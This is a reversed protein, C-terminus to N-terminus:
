TLKMMRIDRGTFQLLQYQGCLRSFIRQSYRKEIENLNLNTNIICSKGTNHRTNILNYLCSATFQNSLEAGLDDIILLDCTFYRDTKKEEIGTNYTRNFREDEFDGFLNQATEYLVDFGRDILAKAIASSMHTKGLGTQGFFLLNQAKQDSFVEVYRQATDFVLEMKKRDAPEQYYQLSFNEFTQKEMLIGIGSTEYGALILARRMCTCIREGQDVFGTDQCKECEYKLDLYDTPYGIMSLLDARQALLEMNDRQVQEMRADLGERGGMAAQFVRLGTQALAENIQAIEPHKAEIERMRMRQTEGAALHKATFEQKIRKYNERNFM